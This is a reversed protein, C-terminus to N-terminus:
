FTFLSNNKKLSCPNVNNYQKKFIWKIRFRKYLEIRFRKKYGYFGFFLYKIFSHICILYLCFHFGICNLNSSLWKDFVCLEPRYGLLNKQIQWATPFFCNEWWKEKVQQFVKTWGVHWKTACGTACGDNIYKLWNENKTGFHSWLYLYVHASFYSPM